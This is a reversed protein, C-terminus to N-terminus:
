EKLMFLNLIYVLFTIRSDIKGRRHMPKCTVPVIWVFTHSSQIHLHVSGQSFPDTRFYEYLSVVIYWSCKQNSFILLQRGRERKSLIFTSLQHLHNNKWQEYQRQLHSAGPGSESLHMTITNPLIYSVLNKIKKLLLTFIPNSYIKWKCISTKLLPLM